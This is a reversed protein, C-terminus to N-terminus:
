IFLYIEWHIKIRYVKSMYTLYNVCKLPQTVMTWVLGKLRVQM